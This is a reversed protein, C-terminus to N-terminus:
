GNREAGDELTRGGPSRETAALRQPQDRQLALLIGATGRLIGGAGVIMEEGDDRVLQARREPRDDSPRPHELGRCDGRLQEGTRQRSPAPAFAEVPLLIAGSAALTQLFDRRSISSM